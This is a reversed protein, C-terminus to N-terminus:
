DMSSFMWCPTFAPCSASGGEPSRFGKELFLKRAAKLIANRRSDKDRQRREEFVM